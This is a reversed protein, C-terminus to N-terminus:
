RPRSARSRPTPGVPRPPRGTYVLHSTDISARSARRLLERGRHGSVDDGLIRLAQSVNSAAAIAVAIEEDSFKASPHQAV